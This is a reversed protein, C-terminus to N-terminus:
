MKIKKVIEGLSKADHDFPCIILGREGIAIIKDKLDQLIFANETFNIIICSEINELHYEESNTLIVNNNKDKPVYPSNYFKQWTGWDDWDKGYEVIEVGMEPLLLPHYLSSFDSFPTKEFFRNINVNENILQLHKQIIKSQPHNEKIAQIMKKKLYDRKFYVIMTDGGINEMGSENGSYKKIFKIAKKDKDDYQIHSFSPQFTKSRAIVTFCDIEGEKIRKIGRNIALKVKHTQLQDCPSIGIIDQPSDTKLMLAIAASGTGTVGTNIMKLSTNLSKSKEIVKETGLLYQKGGGQVKSAIEIIHPYKNFKIPNKFEFPELTKPNIPVHFECTKYAVGIRASSKGKEERALLGVIINGNFNM